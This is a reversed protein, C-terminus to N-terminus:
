LLEAGQKAPVGFPGGAPGTLFSVVGVKITDKAYVSASFLSGIAFMMALTFKAGSKLLNFRM